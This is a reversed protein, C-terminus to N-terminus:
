VIPPRGLRSMRWVTRWRMPRRGGCDTRMGGRMPDGSRRRPVHRRQTTGTADAIRFSVVGLREDAAYHDRLRTDTTLVAVGLRPVSVVASWVEVATGAISM